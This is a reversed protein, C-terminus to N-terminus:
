LSSVRVSGLYNSNFPDLHDHYGWTGLTSFTFQYTAGPAIVRGPDFGLLGTHSPHPNSAIWHGISDENVFAVVTGVKVELVNPLLGDATVKVIATRLVSANADPVGTSQNANGTVTLVNDTNGNTSGTNAIPPGSTKTCASGLLAIAALALLLRTSFAM